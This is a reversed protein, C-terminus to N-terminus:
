GKGTKKSYTHSKANGHQAQEQENQLALKRKLIVMKIRKARRMSIAFNERKKISDIQNRATTGM